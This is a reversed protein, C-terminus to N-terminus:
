ENIIEVERNKALVGLAKLIKESECNSYIIVKSISISQDASKDTCVTIKSFNIDNAKLTYSYVYEAAATQMADLNQSNSSQMKFDTEFFKVPINTASLLTILFVLSLVYKVTKKLSGEPCIIELAAIFICVSCFAIFFYSLSKM